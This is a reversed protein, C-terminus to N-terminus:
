PVMVQMPIGLLNKYEYRSAFQRVNVEIKVHPQHAGPSVTFLLTSKKVRQESLTGYRSTISHLAEFVVDKQELLTLDFDLDVSYRELNYFLMAATGGKFGLAPAITTDTYIDKLIHLLIRKHKNYDSPSM